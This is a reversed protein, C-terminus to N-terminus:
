EKDGPTQKGRHSKGGVGRLAKREPERKVGMFPTEMRSGATSQIVEPLELEPM